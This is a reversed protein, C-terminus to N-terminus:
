TELKVEFQLRVLVSVCNDMLSQLSLKVAAVSPPPLSHPQLTDFKATFDLYM